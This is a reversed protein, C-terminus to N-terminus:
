DNLMWLRNLKIDKCTLFTSVGMKLINTDGKIVLVEAHRAVTKSDLPRHRKIQLMSRKSEDKKM